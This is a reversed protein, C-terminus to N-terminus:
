LTGPHAGLLFGFVWLVIRTKSFTVRSLRRRLRCSEKNGTNHVDGDNQVFLNEKVFLIKRRSLPPDYIFKYNDRSM